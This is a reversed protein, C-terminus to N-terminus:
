IYISTGRLYIDTTKLIVLAVLALSLMIKYCMFSSFCSITHLKLFVPVGSAVSKTFKRNQLCGM